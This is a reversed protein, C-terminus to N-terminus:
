GNPSGNDRSGADHMVEPIRERMLRLTESWVMVKPLPRCIWLRADAWRDAIAMLREYTREGSAAWEALAQQAAMEVAAQTQNRSV